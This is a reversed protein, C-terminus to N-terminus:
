SEHKINMLVLKQKNLHDYFEFNPDGNLVSDFCEIAKLNGLRAAKNFLDKIEQEDIRM